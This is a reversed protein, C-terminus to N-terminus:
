AIFFQKKWWESAQRRLEKKLERIEKVAKEVEPYRGRNRQWFCMLANETVQKSRVLLVIQEAKMLEFNNSTSYPKAM